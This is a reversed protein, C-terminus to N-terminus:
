LIVWDQKIFGFGEERNALGYVANYIYRAV